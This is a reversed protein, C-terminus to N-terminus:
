ADPPTAARPAGRLLAWGLIGAVLSAALIGVKARGLLVADEFALDAIFLSMTFGIGALVGAGALHRWGLDCPLSAVGARAAIWSFLVIGAPKGLLLGAAVGLSVPHFLSAGLGDGPTVGANALAFLPMIVYGVWPHLTHELRALLPEAGPRARSPITMALLVGAVTPHVGSKLVAVWLGLGLAAYAAWRQAGAANALALAALFGGAAGLAPWSLDGTYFLAIVLVAGLDDAIALAALFVKLSAPARPGLLALVGLAFAIDTAMPIGWGACGPGGANLAAYIGAPLLMGGAAAAVPLAAQRPSALEGVLLERKIELGVVLFFVAMLGDNIWLLLPKGLALAGWGLTLRTGFLRAYSDALPSNAWVLALIACGLLLIGSAAELAAFRRFAGAIERLSAAVAAPAPSGGDRKM